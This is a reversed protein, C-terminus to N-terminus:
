AAGCPDAQLIHGAPVHGPEILNRQGLDHNGIVTQNGIQLETRLADRALNGCEM